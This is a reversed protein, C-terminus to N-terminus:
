QTLQQLTSCTEKTDGASGASGMPEASTERSGAKSRGLKKVEHQRLWVELADRYVRYENKRKGARVCVAKLEGAQIMRHITKTSLLLEAAVEAPKFFKHNM